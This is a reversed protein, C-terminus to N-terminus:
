WLSVNLHYRLRHLCRLALNKLRLTWFPFSSLALFRSYFLIHLQSLFELLWWRQFHLVTILSLFRSFLAFFYFCDVFILLQNWHISLDIPERVLLYYFSSFFLFEQSIYALIRPDSSHDIHLSRNRHLLVRLDSHGRMIRICIFSLCVLFDLVLLFCFKLRYRLIFQWRRNSHLLSLNSDLGSNVLMSIVRSTKFM